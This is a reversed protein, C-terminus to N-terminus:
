KRKKIVQVKKIVLYLVNYYFGSNNFYMIVCVGESYAKRDSIKGM